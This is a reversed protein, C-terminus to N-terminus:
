AVEGDLRALEDLAALRAAAARGREGITGRNRQDDAALMARIASETAYLRGGIRRATLRGSLHWRWLTSRGPKHGTLEFCRRAIAGMSLLTEAEGNHSQNDV